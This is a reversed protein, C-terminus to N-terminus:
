ALVERVASIVQEQQGETLALGSPLYLGYRALHEAVPYREGAFLGRKLLAPQEHMGFFFPRTDVGKDALRAAFERADMGAAPELVVGYMWYVSTAWEREVPLRLPLGQLGDTYRSAIERKRAVLSDIREVQALGLAAQINTMRFNFGLDEHRFRDPTGFCLNRMDRLKRALGDDDTLVMGGEGTTVVKNAYFSFCSMDGLSGCRKGKYTAGHAEAADEIVILGCADAIKRVPDMDVPHGYIHVPMIARTRPGIREELSAVDMCWTDPDADVLVPVLGSYLVALVCSVITFTPLVVESGPDLGAAALALQLAATGNSVAVGHRVGCYGAWAEEFAEIFRGASSVWGTELCELVYRREAEGIVPENVPIM